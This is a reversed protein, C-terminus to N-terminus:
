LFSYPDIDVTLRIWMEHIPDGPKLEGRWENPVPNTKVSYRVELPLGREVFPRMFRAHSELVAQESGVHCPTGFEDAVAALNAGQWHLLGNMYAPTAARAGGPTTRSPAELGNLAM